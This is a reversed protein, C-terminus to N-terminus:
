LTKNVPVAMDAASQRCAHLKHRAKKVAPYSLGRGLPKLIFKGSEFRRDSRLTLHARQEPGPLIALEVAKRARQAFIGYADRLALTGAGALLDSEQEIEGFVTAM